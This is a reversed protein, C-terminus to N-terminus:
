KKEENADSKERTNGCYPCFRWNQHFDRNCQNCKNVTINKDDAMSHSKNIAEIGNSGNPTNALIFYLIISIAVCILIPM